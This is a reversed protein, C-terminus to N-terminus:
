KSLLAKGKQLIKELYKYYEHKKAILDSTRNGWKHFFTIDEVKKKVMPAVGGEHYGLAIIATPRAKDPIELLRSVQGEQFAGVWCSGLGEKTAALLLHETAAAASQLAYLEGRQGYFEKEAELEACVVILVPAQAIWEQRVCLEAIAHRTKEEWIVIFKWAQLNGASPAHRAAEIINAIKDFEIEDPMFARVSRRKEIVRYLDM